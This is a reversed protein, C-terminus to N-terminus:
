AKGVLGESRMERLRCSYGNLFIDAPFAGDDNFVEALPYDEEELVM